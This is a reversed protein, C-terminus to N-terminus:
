NIKHLLIKGSKFRVDRILKIVFTELINDRTFLSMQKNKFDQIEVHNKLKVLKPKQSIWYCFWLEDDKEKWQLGDLPQQCLRIHGTKGKIGADEATVKNMPILREACERLSYRGQLKASTVKGTSM